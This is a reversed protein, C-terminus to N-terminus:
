GSEGCCPEQEQTKSEEPSSQQRGQSKMMMAMMPKCCDPLDAVVSDGKGQGGQQTAGGLSRMMREMMPGCCDPMEFGRAQKDVTGVAEANPQESNTEHESM